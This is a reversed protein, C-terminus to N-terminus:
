PSDVQVELYEASALALFKAASLIAPWCYRTFNAAGLVVALAVGIAEGVGVGVGVGTTAALGVVM